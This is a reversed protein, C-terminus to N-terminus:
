RRATRLSTASGSRPSARSRRRRRRRRVLGCRNTRRQGFRAGKDHVDNREDLVVVHLEDCGADRDCFAIDFVAGQRHAVPHPVVCADSGGGDSLEVDFQVEGECSSGQLFSSTDRFATGDEIISVNVPAVALGDYIDGSSVHSVVALDNNADADSVGTVTITQPVSWTLNTFTVRGPTVMAKSSNSSSVTIVVNSQPESELVLDYSGTRGETVTLRTPDVGVNAVTTEQVEVRMTVDPVRGEFNAGSAVHRITGSDELADKDEAVRVTVTQATDWDSTTFTLALETVDNNTADVLRIDPNTGVTITITVSGGVPLTDLSVTYSGSTGETVNLSPASTSFSPSDDDNITVEIDAAEENNSGYDAGAVAHMITAMDQSTDGPEDPALITM